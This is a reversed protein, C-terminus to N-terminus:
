LRYDDDLVELMDDSLFGSEIAEALMSKALALALDNTKPHFIAFAAKRALTTPHAVDLQLDVLAFALGVPIETLLYEQRRGERRIVIKEWSGEVFAMPTTKVYFTEGPGLSAIAKVLAQCFEETSDKMGKLRGFQGEQILTKALPEAAALKENALTFDQLGIAERVETMAKLWAVKEEDSLEPDPMPTTPIAAMAPAPTTAENAAPVTATPTTAGTMSPEPMSPEAPQEMMPTEPMATESMGADPSSPQMNPSNAGFIGDLGSVKPLGSGRPTAPKAAANGATAQRNDDGQIAVANAPAAGDQEPRLIIFYLLALLSGLSILVGGIMMLLSQDRKRRLQKALNKPKAPPLASPNVPTNTSKQLVPIESGPLVAMAATVPVSTAVSAPATAVPSVIGTLLSQLKAFDADVQAEPLIGAIELFGGLDFADQPNGDPLLTDLVSYDWESASVQPSAIAMGFAAQWRRDYAAKRGENLLNRKGLEVIKALRQSRKPDGQSAAKAESIALRLSADIKSRDEELSQLGLLEYLNPFVASAHQNQEATGMRAMDRQRALSEGLRAGLIVEGRPKEAGAKSKSPVLM